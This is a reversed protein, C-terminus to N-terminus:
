WVHRGPLGGEAVHFIRRGGGEGDARSARSLSLQRDARAIERLLQTEEPNLLNPVIVFGDADFQELGDESLIMEQM